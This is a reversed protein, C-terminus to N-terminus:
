PYTEGAGFAASSSPPSLNSLEYANRAIMKDKELSHFDAAVM